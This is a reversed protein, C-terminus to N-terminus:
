RQARVFGAQQAAEESNFWVEASTRGYGAAEPMHYKMSRNNGKIVYGEPPETGVYVGEGSWRPSPGDSLPAAAPEEPLATVSERVVVEDVVTEEIDGADSVNLMTVPASAAFDEEVVAPTVDGGGEAPQHLVSSGDSEATELPASDEATRATETMTPSTAAPPPVYPTSPRAAQWDADQSSLYKRVAVAVAAGVAGVVVIRKVWRGRSKPEEPVVLEAKNGALMAEARSRAEAVLPAAAAASLAGTLKPLLDDSVRGRASEVAPTVRVVADDWVPGFRRMAEATVESGRLRASSALPAVRGAAAGALPNIKDAATQALPGVRDAASQALPGVRDAASHALPAVRDAAAAIAEAASQALPGVRDAATHVWDEAPAVKKRAAEERRSRRSM